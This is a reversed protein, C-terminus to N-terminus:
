ALCALGLYKINEKYKQEVVYVALSTAPNFHAGSIKSAIM